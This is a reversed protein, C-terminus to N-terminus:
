PPSCFEITRRRWVKKMKDDRFFEVADETIVAEMQNASLCGESTQPEPFSHRRWPHRKEELTSPPAMAALDGSTPVSIPFPGHVLNSDNLQERQIIDGSTPIGTHQFLAQALPHSYEAVLDPLPPLEFPTKEDESWAETDPLSKQQRRRLRVSLGAILMIAVIVTAPLHKELMRLLPEVLVHKPAVTGNICSTM